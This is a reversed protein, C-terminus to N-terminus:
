CASEGYKHWCRACPNKRRGPGVHEALQRARYGSATTSFGTRRGSSFATCICAGFLAPVVSSLGTSFLAQTQAQGFNSGTSTESFTYQFLFDKTDKQFQFPACYHSCFASGPGVSIDSV